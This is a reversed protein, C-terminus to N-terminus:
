AEKVGDYHIHDLMKKITKSLNMNTNDILISDDPKKLPANKRNKDDHDRKKIERLIDKFIPEQGKSKLQMFRRQARRYASATLFFKFDANPLVVTGIDRGDMVININYAIDRQKKLLYERVCVYKSICSSIMSIDNNRLYNDVCIKNLYVRQKKDYWRVDIDIYNMHQLVCNEDSYNLHNAYFYFAIARYLSGTDLYTCDLKKALKKAITSKGAGAPGDIAIQM